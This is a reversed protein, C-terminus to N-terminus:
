RAAPTISGNLCAKDVAGSAESQEADADCDVMAALRVLEALEEVAGDPM